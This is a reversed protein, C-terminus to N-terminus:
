RHVGHTLDESPTSKFFPIKVVEDTALRDAKCRRQEIADPPYKKTRRMLRKMACFLLSIDPLAHGSQGPIESM